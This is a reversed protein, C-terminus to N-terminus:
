LKNAQEMAKALKGQGHQHLAQIAGTLDQPERNQSLKAMGELHTIVIEIGVVAKVMGNIFDHPADGMKWLVPMNAEHKRTLRALLGRIFREDNHIILKGRAHVVEYNWTPVFRHTEKKTPYWGPSIFGENGRFVVTVEAALEASRQWVSNERAVHGLLTGFEGKASDLEFPIHNVDLGHETPTIWIGLPHNRVIQHLGELTSIAFQTPILM